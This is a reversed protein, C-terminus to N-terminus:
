TVHDPSHQLAESILMLDMAKALQHILHAVNHGGLVAAGELYWAIVYM